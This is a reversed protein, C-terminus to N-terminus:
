VRRLLFTPCREWLEYHGWHVESITFWRSILIELQTLTPFTYCTKSRHYREITEVMVLPWGAIMALQDRDPFLTNFVDFIDSVRITFDDQQEVLAMALRWKLSGFYTINGALADRVVQDLSEHWQPRIFCRMVINGNPRLVRALEAFLKQYALKDPLQTTCGDGLIIDVTSDNVPMSQWCAQEVSSTISTNPQWVSAIMEESQDFARFNVNIPWPQGVIEPTVGLLVLELRYVDKHLFPTVLEYMIKTAERPPRLPLGGRDNMMPHKSWVHNQMKKSLNRMLFLRANGGGKGPLTNNIMTIRRCEFFLEFALSLLV